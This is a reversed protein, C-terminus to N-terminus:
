AAPAKGESFFIGPLCEITHAVSRTPRDPRKFQPPTLLNKEKGFVKWVTEPSSAHPLSVSNLVEHCLWDHLATHAHTNVYMLARM